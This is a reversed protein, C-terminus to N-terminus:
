IQNVKISIAHLVNNDIIERLSSYILKHQEIRSLGNFRNSSINIEYHNQDGVLDRIEIKAEPFSLILIENLKEISVAM